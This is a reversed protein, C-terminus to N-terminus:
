SLKPPQWINNQYNDDLNVTFLTAKRKEQIFINLQVKSDFKFVDDESCFANFNEFFDSSDQCEGSICLSNNFFAIGAFSSNVWCVYLSLVLTLVSIQKLAKRM